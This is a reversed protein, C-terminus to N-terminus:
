PEAPFAHTHVPTEELLVVAQVAIARGEGVSDLGENTRAKINVRTPDLGLLEAVRRRIADRHPALRPQQAIINVDLNVPAFGAARVKDLVAALLRSSDAGRCAPDTDPFYEGLDGLAAAGLLADCVAHLLADGDSHGLLGRPWPIEVGGLRLPRDPVLPHIDYGLGVRV